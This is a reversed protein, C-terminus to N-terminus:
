SRSRFVARSLHRSVPAESRCTLAAAKLGARACAKAPRGKLLGYFFAAFLADGAGTVDAAKVEPAPHLGEYGPAAVAVGAAGMSVAANMAGLRVLKRACALAGAAGRCPLGALLGAESMNPKIFDCGDIAGALRASKEDSVPELAYPLAAARCAAALFSVTGASFNADIVAADYRGLDLRLRTIDAPAAREATMDCYGRSLSGDPELAAVYVGTRPAPIAKLEVGASRLDSRLYAGWRDDALPAALTVRCGFGALDRAINAGVGGASFHVDSDVSTRPRARGRPRASVDLNCGGFVIIKM